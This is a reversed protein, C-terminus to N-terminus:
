LLAIRMLSICGYSRRGGRPQEKKKSLMAYRRPRRAL